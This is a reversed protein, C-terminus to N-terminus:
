WIRSRGPYAMNRTFLNETTLIRGDALVWAGNLVSASDVDANLWNLITETTGDELRCGLFNTGSTYYLDYDGGGTSVTRGSLGPLVCRLSDDLELTEPDIGRLTMSMGQNLVAPRGDCTAEVM